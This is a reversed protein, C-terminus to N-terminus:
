ATKKSITDENKAFDTTYLGPHSIMAAIKKKVEIKQREIHALYSILLRFVKANDTKESVYNKQSIMSSLVSKKVGLMTAAVSLKIDLSQIVHKLKNENQM